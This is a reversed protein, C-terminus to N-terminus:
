QPYMTRQYADFGRLKRTVDRELPMSKGATAPNPCIYM